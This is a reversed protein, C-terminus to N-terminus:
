LNKLQQSSWPMLNSFGTQPPLFKASLYFEIWNTSIINAWKGPTTNKFVIDLQLFIRQGKNVDEWVDRLTIEHVRCLLTTYHVHLTNKAWLICEKLTRTAIATKAAQAEESVSKSSVM